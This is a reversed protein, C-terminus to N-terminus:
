ENGNEAKMREKVDLPLTEFLASEVVLGAQKLFHCAGLECPLALFNNGRLELSTLQTLNSIKPSLVSLMNNGLKLIRLKRLSFLEDPVAEVENCAFSLYELSQLQRIEPPIVHIKNHSLDLCWLRSCLFLQFPLTKIKNHSFYLRELNTLKRIDEPIQTISNYWLKLCTFRSLQQFSVIEQVSCLKNERLDLNQLNILSFIAHPICELDCRMLQLKTLNAMKKLSNLMMLHTGDNNICLHQLHGSVDTIAQPIKSINSNLSLVKLSRLDRLSELTINKSISPSLSGTLHLEELNKLMYLWSPLEEADLFRVRLVKLKAKLFSLAVGNVKLSCRILSLEDLETLQEIAAPITANNIMDLKLSQLEFLDFVTDPLGPLMFLHLELRGSSNPQLRCRLKNAPWAHNLNLQQLRSESAKSLFIAFRTSYLPDYQDALHLMFAFDNKVDPIDSVGSEKRMYDFSYEKLSCYFLWSTTYLCTLGYLLICSLYCYTTNSVLYAITYICCFQSYGTIGHTEVSCTNIIQVHHVLASTYASILIVMLLKLITQYVYTTYLLNSEEVHLRFKKIREFLAKAQECEKKDLVSDAEPKDVVINSPKSTLFLTSSEIHSKPDNLEEPHEGSMESLARTTWPSEFCKALICTFHEIRSSSRPFKFWFNSCLLFGATHTLALFPFCKPFWHVALQYCIHNIFKYQNTDLRTIVPDASANLSSHTEKYIEDCRLGKQPLCFLKDDLIQITCGFVALSIMTFSLLDALVDWWPKLIRFMQPQESFQWLESVALM